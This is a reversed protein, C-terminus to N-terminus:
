QEPILAGSHGDVTALSVKGDHALVTLVYVLGKGGRCLRARVVEGKLHAKAVHMARGLPMAQRNVIAARRQEQTLCIRAEAGMAPATGVLMLAILAWRKWMAADERARDPFVGTFRDHGVIRSLPVIV